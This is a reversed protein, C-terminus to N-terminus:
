SYVVAVLKVAVFSDACIAIIRFDGKLLFLRLVSVRKGPTCDVTGSMRGLLIGKASTASADQHSAQQHARAIFMPLSHNGASSRRPGARREEYEHAHQSHKEKEASNTRTLLVRQRPDSIFSQRVQRRSASAPELDENRLSGTEEYSTDTDRRAPHHHARAIFMPLSHNGASSRRPGARREEYEHAHQSHKEKEASNTRTLLVRQRPDSIFSQRVQRRSASAPELDENRLSGTEEYSTDTDRRAPHHHARAIFMPLSHNGASSRRPGARREEYEHAHQSHKEKEASNTRTLLVRQRPDSIFSQRVQRRSASAPELDENRLSGTEEYSTDTDRRAPHHHARAIFMPLSHNGASSRRPGARREEYEHAHQSHKEKEASNTRTLLVRQRPDSIFSQRVQRRSASAPEYMDDSRSPREDASAYAVQHSPQQHARAIFMPLSHNGASSRRPGARREEYEHAHQSHKEKEASNTRTLLVRQRPDSIFSQRVQRRSASAPELDENRLSGTEEYSTDTDRRAPHHHARAIFMPLSHNGASSRRPGARREEYEHAHQSHKEKEASNTRTLLVRQRPDSIFSQRVQRRSASAPELDENRLSGTEEYSTDTDRRAPHHHARAIFMPLSHNGASSRRPGARREEYEHAHQSHKEKEASNTRTLLVRQRPDSIFSQRVQRRSASAPEYMDDSRSPREDASAYAVQHSPQQHARAIFMPLSHNGASSRRPGARREEYEHAHQSHKEKEASNTRTLLVRQRPDSIFSQRVQRRSASAPEYMDDSRSPREDASAYAVQHSPQQHARAIFMPLSHNGASSRRPGARREEYEHAHQSHKEKEASNTRTLLVRQRPDSIFSQRVQRRSASAPELDENRLSGTEEYSTDTDRRAPHHHARAIFMPLSHNGASSRRPGARREEYEHAHQSHKEKEASNTRTLLVRQRPDSIFSQRVQRRSASAPELDENRLSGTEEYSTDTDRRAPHHHARAIFMPLSHNGASSRRPGARREEYEHAHQSHKEKEASNTRTLLVRQRPDSIFSQRVQRRSASAPELDENRLSGTEEYSTDTDRRAPHHHARAIFMPLSHNGASSRRPGARREEYEHAHPNKNENNAAENHRHGDKQQMNFFSNSSSIDLTPHQLAHVRNTTFQPKSTAVCTDQRQRTEISPFTKITEHKHRLRNQKPLQTPSVSINLSHLLVPSSNCITNTWGDTSTGAPRQAESQKYKYHQQQTEGSMVPVPQPVKTTAEERVAIPPETQSLFAKSMGECVTLVTNPEGRNHVRGAVMSGPLASARKDATQPPMSPTEKDAPLVLNKEFHCRENAGGTPPSPDARHLANSHLGGSQDFLIPYSLLARESALVAEQQQAAESSGCRSPEGCPSCSNPSGFTETSASGHPPDKYVPIPLWKRKRKEGSSSKLGTAFEQIHRKESSILARNVPLPVGRKSGLSPFSPLVRHTASSNGLTKSSRRQHKLWIFASSSRRRAGPPDRLPMPQLIM